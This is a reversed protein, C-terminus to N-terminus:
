ARRAAAVLTAIESPTVTELDHRDKLLCGLTQAVVEPMSRTRGCTLLARTFDLTEAVGPPKVLRRARLAQLFRAIQEPLAGRRRPAARTPHHAGRARADPPRPLSLPVAPPARRRARAHPQVHAARAASAHGPHHRARPHHGPFRVAARAPLGRVRRRRPRDRRHAAGGAGGQHTIARLLPRELLYDRSFIRAELPTADEGRGDAIRVRLMQRPYDWEYLATQVDLGEYCQLRILETASCAPWCRPSSPRASAPTARSSCRSAPPAAGPVPRHRDGARRHLRRAELDALLTAIAPTVRRGGGRRTAGYKEPAALFRARCGGCCFYYDREGVRATHAAGEIRVMMNCVPDRAERASRRVACVPARRIQVTPQPKRSVLAKAHKAAVIEALISLAIEEPVDAGLDLGAPNKVREVAARSAKSPSSRAADRRLAQRQGDRRPVDPTAAALAALSAEEDWQGQTAVVAFVPRRLRARPAPAAPETTVADADPFAAADATPDVLRCPM